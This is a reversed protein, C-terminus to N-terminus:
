GPVTGMRCASSLGGLTLGAAQRARSGSLQIGDDAACRDHHDSAVCDTHRRLHVARGGRRDRTTGAPHPDRCPRRAPPAGASGSDETRSGVASRRHRAARVDEVRVSGSAGLGSGGDRRRLAAGTESPAPLLPRFRRLDGTNRALPCRPVAPASRPHQVPRPPHRRSGRQAGLVQRGAPPPSPRPTADRSTRAAACGQMGGSGCGTCLEGWGWETCFM